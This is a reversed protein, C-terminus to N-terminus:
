PTTHAVKVLLVRTESARKEGRAAKFRASHKHANNNNHQQELLKEKINHQQTSSIGAFLFSSFNFFFRESKRSLFFSLDDVFSSSSV